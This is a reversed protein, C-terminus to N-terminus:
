IVNSEQEKNNEVYERLWEFWPQKKGEGMYRAFTSSIKDQEKKLKERRIEDEKVIKALQNYSGKFVDVDKLAGVMWARVQDARVKWDRAIQDRHDSALLAKVMEELWAKGYKDQYLEKCKEALLKKLHLEPAFYNLEEQVENQMQGGNEEDTNNDPVTVVEEFETGETDDKLFSGLIDKLMGERVNGINVERHHDYHNAGTEYHYKANGM